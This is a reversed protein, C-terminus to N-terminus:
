HDLSPVTNLFRYQLTGIETFKFATNEKFVKKKMQYFFKIGGLM